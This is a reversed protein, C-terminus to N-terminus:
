KRLNFNFDKPNYGFLKNVDQKPCPLIKIDKVLVPVHAGGCVPCAEELFGITKSM